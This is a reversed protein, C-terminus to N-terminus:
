RNNTRTNRVCHLSAPTTSPAKASQSVAPVNIEVALLSGAVFCVLIELCLGLCLSRNAGRAVRYQRPLAAVFSTVELGIEHMRM